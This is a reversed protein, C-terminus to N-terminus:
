VLQPETPDYNNHLFLNGPAAAAATVGPACSSTDLGLDMKKFPHGYLIPIQPLRYNNCEISLFRGQERSGVIFRRLPLMLAAESQRRVAKNIIEFQTEESLAPESKLLEAM